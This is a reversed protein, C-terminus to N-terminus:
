AGRLWHLLARWYSGEYAAFWGNFPMYEMAWSWFGFVTHCDENSCLSMPLGMYIVKDAKAQCNPCNNM